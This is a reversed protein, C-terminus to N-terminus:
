QLYRRFNHETQRVIFHTGDPLRSLTTGNPRAEAWHGEVFRGKREESASRASTALRWASSVMVRM